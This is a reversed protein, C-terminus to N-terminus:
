SDAPPICRGFHSQSGGNRSLPGYSKVLSERLQKYMGSGARVEPVGFGLERVLAKQFSAVTAFGAVHALTRSPARVGGAVRAFVLWRALRILVSPPPVRENAFSRQLSRVSIGLWRAVMSVNPRDATHVITTYAAPQALPSLAGVVDACVALVAVQLGSHPTADDTPTMANRQALGSIRRSSADRTLPSPGATLSSWDAYEIVRAASAIASAIEAPLRGVVVVTPKPISIHADAVPSSDGRELDVVM